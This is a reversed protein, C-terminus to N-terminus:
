LYGERALKDNISQIFNLTLVNELAWRLSKDNAIPDLHKPSYSLDSFNSNAKVMGEYFLTVGQRNKTISSFLMGNRATQWQFPEDQIISEAVELYPIESLQEILQNNNNRKIEPVANVYCVFINHLVKFKEQSLDKADILRAAARYHFIARTQFDEIASEQPSVIRARRMQFQNINGAIWHLRCALLESPIPSQLQEVVHREINELHFLNEDNRSQDNMLLRCTNLLANVGEPFPSPFYHSHLTNIAKALEQGPKYSPNNQLSRLTNRAISLKNGPMSAAIERGLKEWTLGHLRLRNIQNFPTTM